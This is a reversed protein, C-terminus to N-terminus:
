VSFKRRIFVIASSTAMLLILSGPEPIVYLSAEMGARDGPSLTFEIQMTINSIVGGPYSGNYFSGFGSGVTSPPTALAGYNIDDVLNGDIFAQYFPIAGNNTLSSGGGNVDQLSLALAGFAQSSSSALFAPQSVTVQYTQASATTNTFIQSVFISPDPNFECAEIIINGMMNPTAENLVYVDNVEDYTFDSVAYEHQWDNGMGTSVTIQPLFNGLESEPMLGAHASVFVLSAGLTNLFLRKM